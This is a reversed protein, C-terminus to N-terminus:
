PKSNAEALSLLELFGEVTEIVTGQTLQSSNKMHTSSTLFPFVIHRSIQPMQAKMKLNIPCHLLLRRGGVLPLLQGAQSFSRLLTDIFYQSSKAAEERFLVLVYVRSM